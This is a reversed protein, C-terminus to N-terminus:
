IHILSLYIDALPSSAICGRRAHRPKRARNRYDSWEVARSRAGIGNEWQQYTLTRVSALMGLIDIPSDGINKLPMRLVTFAGQEQQSAPARKQTKERVRILRVNHKVKLNVESLRRREIGFTVNALRDNRYDLISWEGHSFDPSEQASSQRVLTRAQDEVTMDQGSAVEVRTFNRRGSPLGGPDCRFPATM